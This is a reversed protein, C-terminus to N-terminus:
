PLWTKRQEDSGHAVLLQSATLTAVLPVPSVHAGLQECVLAVEVAGFGLGDYEEPIAVGLLGADALDSWLARDFSDPREEAMTIQEASGNRSFASRALEALEQQLETLTSIM